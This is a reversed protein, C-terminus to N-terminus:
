SSACSGLLPAPALLPEPRSRHSRRSWRGGRPDQMRGGPEAGPRGRHVPSRGTGPARTHTLGRGRTSVCRPPLCGLAAKPASCEPNGPTPGGDPGRQQGHQPEARQPSRGARGVHHWGRPVAADAESAKGPRLRLVFGQVDAEQRTEVQATSQEAPAAPPPPEDGDEVVSSAPQSNERIKRRKGDSSIEMGYTQTVNPTEVAHLAHPHKNLHNHLCIRHPRM